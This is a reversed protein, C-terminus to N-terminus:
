QSSRSRRLLGHKRMHRAISQRAESAIVFHDRQVDSGKHCLPVLGGGRRSVPRRVHRHQGLGLRPAQLMPKLMEGRKTLCCRSAGGGREQKVFGSNCLDRLRGTLAKDSQQPIDHRLEGYRM